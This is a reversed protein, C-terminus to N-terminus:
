IGDRKDREKRINYYQKRTTDFLKDPENAENIEWACDACYWQGNHVHQFHASNELQCAVRNCNQGEKGKGESIPKPLMLGRTWRYSYVNKM